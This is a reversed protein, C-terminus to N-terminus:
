NSLSLTNWIRTSNEKYSSSSQKDNTNVLLKVLFRSFRSSRFRFHFYISLDAQNLCIYSIGTLMLYVFYKPLAM